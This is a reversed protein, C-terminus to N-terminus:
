RMMEQMMKMMNYQPPANQWDAGTPSRLATGPHVNPTSKYNSADRAMQGSEEMRSLNLYEDQILVTKSFSEDHHESNLHRDM